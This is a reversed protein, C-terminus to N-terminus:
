AVSRGDRLTEGGSTHSFRQTVVWIVAASSVLSAMANLKIGKLFKLDDLLLKVYGMM